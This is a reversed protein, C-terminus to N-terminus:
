KSQTEIFLITGSNRQHISLELNIFAAPILVIAQLTTIRCAAQPVIGTTHM